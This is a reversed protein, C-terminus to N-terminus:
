SKKERQKLKPIVPLDVVIRGTRQMEELYKRAQESRRHMEEPSCGNKMDRMLRQWDEWGLPPTPEIPRAM